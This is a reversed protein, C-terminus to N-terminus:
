FGPVPNPVPNPIPNPVPDTDPDPDPNVQFALDRDVVSYAPFPMM